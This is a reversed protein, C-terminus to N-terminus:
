PAAGGASRHNRLHDCSGGRRAQTRMSIGRQVSGLDSNRTFPLQRLHDPSQVDEIRLGDLAKQYYPSRELVYGLHKRLAALQLVEVDADRWSSPLSLEARM